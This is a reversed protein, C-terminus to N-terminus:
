TKVDVGIKNLTVIDLLELPARGLLAHNLKKVSWGLQDALELDSKETILQHYALCLGIDQHWESIAEHTKEVSIDHEARLRNVETPHIGLWIGVVHSPFPVRLAEPLGKKIESHFSM